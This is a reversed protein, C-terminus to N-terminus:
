ATRTISGVVSSTTSEFSQIQTGVTDSSSRINFRASGATTGIAVNGSAHNMSLIYNNVWAGATDSLSGFTLNTSENMMAFTRAGTAATNHELLIRAGSTVDSSFLM